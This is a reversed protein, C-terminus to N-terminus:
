RTGAGATDVCRLAGNERAAVYALGVHEPYERLAAALSTIDTDKCQPIRLYNCVFVCM